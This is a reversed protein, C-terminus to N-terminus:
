SRVAIAEIEIDADKPLVVQICARAPPCDKFYEGYVANVRGFNGMDKLFITTKVVDNLTMGAEALIAIINKMCLHTQEEITGDLLTTAGVEMPLQGSIFVMNGAQIGQSFPGVPTAVKESYLVKNM